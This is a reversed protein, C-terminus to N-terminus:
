PGGVGAAVEGDWVAMGDKMEGSGREESGSVEESSSAKPRGFGGRGM